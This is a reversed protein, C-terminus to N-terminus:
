QVIHAFLQRVNCPYLHSLPTMILPIWAHLLGQLLCSHTHWPMIITSPQLLQSLIYHNHQPTIFISPYLSQALTYHNHQPTIITRPHLSQAPTYHNNQPTIITSLNLSQATANLRRSQLQFSLLDLLTSNKYFCKQIFHSSIHLM